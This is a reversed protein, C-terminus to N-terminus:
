GHVLPAVQVKGFKRNAYTQQSITEPASKAQASTIVMTQVRINEGGGELPKKM